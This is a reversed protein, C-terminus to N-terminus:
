QNWLLSKFMKEMPGINFSLRTM